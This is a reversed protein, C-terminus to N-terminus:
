GRQRARRLEERTHKRPTGGRRRVAEASKAAFHELLALPMKKGKGKGVRHRRRAM